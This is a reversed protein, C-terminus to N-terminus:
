GIYIRPVRKSINCTIEYPITNLQKSWDWADISQHKSRGLLIVKDSIKIKTEGVDFMIRDMTVRGVQPYLKDKIICFMKNSLNRNLGDGYGIPVSIIQSRKKLIYKRGYSVSEGKEFWRCSAAESILSMVPKLKISSTIEQSPPYGYLSIGPRVMDFYAEPMTLIAGSNAIHIVNPRIKKKKLENLIANFRKLQLQAFTKDKEDSTALHSYIGDLIFRNTSVIKEIFHLADKFPVGLRGMGTDIKVQIKFGKSTKTLNKEILHLHEDSFVTPILDHTFIEDINTPTPSEFILIPQKVKIERLAIGEESLAVGFYEPKEKLSNLANVVEAFGHGYADAKVVALVKTKTKKRIALYNAKLHALNIQAITPRM